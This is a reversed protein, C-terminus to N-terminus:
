AWCPFVLVLGVQELWGVISSDIGRGCVVWDGGGAWAEDPSVAETFVAVSFYLSPGARVKGVANSVSNRSSIDGWSHSNEVQTMSAAADLGRMEVGSSSFVVLFVLFCSECFM